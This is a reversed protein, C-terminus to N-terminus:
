TVYYQPMEDNTRTKKNKHGGGYPSPMLRQHGDDTQGDTQRDTGSWLDLISPCLLSFIPLFSAWSVTSGHGWKCISFDDFNRLDLDSPRNISLRFIHWIKRLSHGVFKLSPVSISYSSGCWQCVRHRWLDFTLSRHKLTLDDTRRTNTLLEVFFTAPAGFNAHLNDTGRTVNRMLELTLLDLTLTM